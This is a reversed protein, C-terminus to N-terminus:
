EQRKWSFINKHPHSHIKLISILVDTVIMFIEWRLYGSLDAFTAERKKKREIQVFIKYQLYLSNIIYFICNCELLHNLENEPCQATHGSFSSFSAVTLLFRSKYDSTNASKRGQWKTEGLILISCPTESPCNCGRYFPSM